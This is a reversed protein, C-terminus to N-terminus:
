EDWFEGTLSDPKLLDANDRYVVSAIQVAQKLAKARAVKPMKRIREAESEVLFGEDRLKEELDPFWQVVKRAGILGEAVAQLASQKLKAPEENGRFVDPEKKRWGREDLQSWLRQSQSRNIVGHASAAYLWVAVSLGYKKKLLLLESLTLNRRQEGLEETVKESPVLFSSAFRHALKEGIKDDDGADMLLHGLEHLLDFRLRDVPVTNNVIVLPYKKNIRASLGDFSTTPEKNYHVILIGHAEFCQTVSDIPGNGLKWRKRLKSAVVDADNLSDVRKRLPIDAKFSHPILDCVQVYKEAENASYAKVSERKAVALATKARFSFWEIEAVPEEFFYDTTVGYVSALTRVMFANPMRKGTEYNSLAARTVDRGLDKIKLAVQNLSLGGAVRANKLRDVNM